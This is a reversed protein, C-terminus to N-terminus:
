ACKLVYKYYIKAKQLIKECLSVPLKSALSFIRKLIGQTPFQQLFLQLQGKLLPLVWAFLGSSGPATIGCAPTQSPAAPYSATRGRDGIVM